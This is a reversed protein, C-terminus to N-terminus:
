KQSPTAARSTPSRPRKHHVVTSAAVATKRKFGWENLKLRYSRESPFHFNANAFM